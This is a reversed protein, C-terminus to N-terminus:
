TQKWRVAMGDVYRLDVQEAITAPDTFLEDYASVFRQVREELADNGLVLTLGNDLTATWSSLASLQLYVIKLQVPTLLETLSQHIQLMLQQQQESGVLQPLSSPLKQTLIPFIEGNKNLLEDEGWRAVIEQEIVRIRVTDPWLRYISVQAVWPLNLIQRRLHDINIFLLGRHLFPRVMSKLDERSVYQYSSGVTVQQVPMINLKPLSFWGWSLLGTLSVVMLLWALRKYAVM